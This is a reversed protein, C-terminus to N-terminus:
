EKHIFRFSIFLKIQCASAIINEINSKISVINKIIFKNLNERVFFSNLCFFILYQINDVITNIIM